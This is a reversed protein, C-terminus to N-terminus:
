QVSYDEPYQYNAEKLWSLRNPATVLLTAENDPAQQRNRRCLYQYPVYRMVDHIEQNLAFLTGNLYELPNIFAFSPPIGGTQLGQRYTEYVASFDGRFYVLQDAWLRSTDDTNNHRQMLLNISNKRCKALTFPKLPVVYPDILLVSSDAPYINRFMELKCWPWPSQDSTLEFFIQTTNEVELDCDAFYFWQHPTQLYKDYWAMLQRLRNRGHASGYRMCTVLTLQEPQLIQGYEKFQQQQRLEDASWSADVALQALSQKLERGAYNVGFSVVGEPSLVQEQQPKDTLYRTLRTLKRETEQNAAYLCACLEGACGLKPQPFLGKSAINSYNYPNDLQQLYTESMKASAMGWVWKLDASYPAPPLQGFQNYVTRTMGLTLGWGVPITEQPSTLQLVPAIRLSQRDGVVYSHSHCSILDADRLAEVASTLWNYRCFVTCADVFYFKRITGPLQRVGLNCLEEFHSTLPSGTNLRVFLYPIQNTEAFGQLQPEASEEQGEVLLWQEPKPNSRLMFQLAQKAAAVKKLGIGWFPQILATNVIKASPTTIDQVLLLSADNAALRAQLVPLLSTVNTSQTKVVPAATTVPPTSAAPSTTAALSSQRVTNRSIM